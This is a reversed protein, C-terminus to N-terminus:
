RFKEAVVGQTSLYVVYNGSVAGVPAALPYTPVWTLGTSDLPYITGTSATFVSSPSLAEWFYGSTGSPLAPRGILNGAKDYMTVEGYVYLGPPNNTGPINALLRGNDIWGAGIDNIASLVKDDQYIKTTSSQLPTNLSSDTTL